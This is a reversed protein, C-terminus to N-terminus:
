INLVLVVFLLLAVRARHVPIHIIIKISVLSVCQVHDNSRQQVLLFNPVVAVRLLVHQVDLIMVLLEQNTIVQMAISLNFITPLLGM